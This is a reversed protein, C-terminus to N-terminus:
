SSLGADQLRDRASGADRPLDDEINLWPLCHNFHGHAEPPYADANDFLGLPVYFQGPLYDFQAGIPSGCQACHFRNVGGKAFHRPSPTQTVLVSGEPFAAFAAM